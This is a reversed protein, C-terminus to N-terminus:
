RRNRKRKKRRDKRAENAERKALRAKIKQLEAMAEAHEGGGTLGEEMLTHWVQSYPGDNAFDELRALRGAENRERAERDKLHQDLFACGFPSADHVACRGDAQLWHCNGNPQKAPVLSPIQVVEGTNTNVYIFGQSARLHQRAWTMLDEGPPCLRKLDSPVLFGPMIRCWFSCLECACTTRRFGFETRVPLSIRGNAAKPLSDTIDTM